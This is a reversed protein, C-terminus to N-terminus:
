IAFYYVHSGSFGKILCKGKVPILRLKDTEELGDCYYKKGNWFLMCTFHNEQHMSYGSLQYANGFVTINMPLAQMCDYIEDQKINCIDFPIVWVSKTLFYCGEVVPKGRCEYFSVRGHCEISERNNLAVPAHSPPNNQFEAGCYGSVRDGTKPFHEKLKVEFLVM